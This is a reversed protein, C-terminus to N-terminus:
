AAATSTRPGSRSRGTPTRRGPRPSRERWGRNSCSRKLNVRAHPPNRRPTLDSELPQSSPPRCSHTSWMRLVQPSPHHRRKARAQNAGFNRGAKPGTPGGHLAPHPEVPLGAANGGLRHAALPRRGQRLV